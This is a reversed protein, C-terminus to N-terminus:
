QLRGNRMALKLRPKTSIWRPSSLAELSRLRRKSAEIKAELRATMEKKMEKINGDMKVQNTKMEEKNTRVEAKMEALLNAMMQEM